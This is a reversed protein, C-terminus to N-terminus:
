PFQLRGARWEKLVMKASFEELSPPGSAISELVPEALDPAFELAHAAAWGRVEIREDDLLHLLAKQASPGRNKLERLVAAIRHYSRNAIKHKGEHSAARHAVAAEAYEKLLADLAVRQHNFGKTM